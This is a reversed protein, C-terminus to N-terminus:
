ANAVTHLNVFTDKLAAFYGRCDYKLGHQAMFKQIRPSLTAFRYQPMAPFLHHEIQFNLYAMWWNVFINNTCNITYDSAYEAWTTAKDKADVVDLHTHSVAFNVFIYSGGFFQM